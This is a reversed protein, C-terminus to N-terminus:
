QLHITVAGSLDEFVSFILTGTRAQKPLTDAMQEQM